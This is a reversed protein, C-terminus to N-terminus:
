GKKYFRKLLAKIDLGEMPGDEVFFPKKKSIYWYFTHGDEEFSFGLRRSEPSGQKGCYVEILISGDDCNAANSEIHEIGISKAAFRLKKEFEEVKTKQEMRKRM